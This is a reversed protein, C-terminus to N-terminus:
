DLEHMKESLYPSLHGDHSDLGLKQRISSNVNYQEKVQLYSGIDKGTFGMIYLCCYNMEKETLGNEKLYSIFKPHMLAFSLRTSYLFHERDSILKELEKTAADRRNGSVYATIFNDLVTLRDFIHQRTEGSIANNRITKELSAKEKSLSSYLREFHKKEQEIEINAIELKKREKEAAEKEAALREKEENKERIKKKMRDIVIFSVLATIVIGLILVIIFNGQRMISIEAKLREITAHTDDDIIDFGSANVLDNYRREAEFAEKYKGSAYCADSLASYYAPNNEYDPTFVTCNALADLAEQRHNGSSNFVRAVTTWSVYKGPVEEIYKEVTELSSDIAGEKQQLSILTHFYNSKKSPVTNDWFRKIEDLALRCSDYQELILYKNAITCLTSIYKNTDKAEMYFDGAKGANEIIAEFDYIEGFIKAKGMYLLGKAVADSASPVSREAEMFHEMASERDGRNQCIRGMYYHTKLKQDATGHHRYWRLAPAIISDSTIDIYNKDLAMSHLLAHRAYNGAGTISEQSMARLSDLARQPDNSIYSEISDLRKGFDQRIACGPLLTIVLCFFILYSLTKKM